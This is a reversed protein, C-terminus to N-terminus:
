CCVALRSKSLISLAAQPQVNSRCCSTMSAEMPSCSGSSATHVRILSASGCLSRRLFCEVSSCFLCTYTIYIQLSTGRQGRGRGGVERTWKRGSRQRWAREKWGM